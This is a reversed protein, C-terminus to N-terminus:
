CMIPAGSVPPLHQKSCRDVIVIDMQLACLSELLEHLLHLIKCLGVQPISIFLSTQPQVM